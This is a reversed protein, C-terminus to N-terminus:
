SIAPAGPVPLLEVWTRGPALNMVAGTADVLRFPDHLGPRSWTGATVKGDRAVWAKGTGLVVVYPDESRAADFIGTGHIQTTLVVVDTAVVRGSDTTVDPTGNQDREWHSTQANWHWTAVAQPGITVALTSAPAAAAGVPGYAFPSAAPPSGHNGLHRGEALLSDLSAFVNAPARRSPDLRFPRPDDDHSILTAGGHDKAPAIEGTAAGSYGFIPSGFLPLLDGDVPRASRIPGISPPDQSQFVAFLRSLGGEVLTDFVLDAANLGAQPRAPPANDIKVAVVPRDPVGVPAALGTLPMTAAPPSSASPATTAGGGAAGAAIAVKRSRGGSGCAATALVAILAVALNQRAALPANRSPALPPRATEALWVTGGWLWRHHDREPQSPRPRRPARDDVAGATRIKSGACRFKGTWPM